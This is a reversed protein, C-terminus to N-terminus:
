ARYARHGAIGSPASPRTRAAPLGPSPSFEAVWDIQPRAAKVVAELDSLAIMVMGEAPEGDSRMTRGPVVLRAHGPLRAASLSERAARVTACYVTDGRRFEEDIREFLEGGAPGFREVLDSLTLVTGALEVEEDRVLEDM